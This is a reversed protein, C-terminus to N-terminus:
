KMVKRAIREDGYEVVLWYVGASLNTTDISKVAFANSDKREYVLKGLVDYLRVDVKETNKTEFNIHLCAGVPNPFVTLIDETPIPTSGCLSSMALGSRPGGPALTALIRNKQGTTFMKMCRDDVLDMFNMFMDFNDCSLQPHTPCGGYSMSQLPTDMVFDDIECDDSDGHIHRLNFFHGLEHTTTRGLDYPYSTPSCNDGFHDYDIVPADENPSVTGPLKARGLIPGCIHAVYLNLYRESDWIDRGGKDTYYLRPTADPALTTLTNGICEFETKTRTIGSTATGDPDVNVLCFEIEVDAAFEKFLAPIRDTGENRFRFDENLVQIQDFIQQDPINETSDLYVVHVVVPITIIERPSAQAGNAQIWNQTHLEIAAQRLIAASDTVPELECRPIQQARISLFCLLLLFSSFATKFYM